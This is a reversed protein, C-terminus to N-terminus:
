KNIETYSTDENWEQTGIKQHAAKKINQLIQNNFSYIKMTFHLHYLFTYLFNSIVRWQFRVVTSPKTWMRGCEKRRTHIKASTVWVPCRMRTPDWPPGDREKHLRREKKPSKVVRDILVETATKQKQQETGWRETVSKTDKVNEM